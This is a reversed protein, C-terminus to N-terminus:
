SPSAGDAAPSSRRIYVQRARWVPTRRVVALGLRWSALRARFVSAAVRGRLRAVRSPASCARPYGLEGLLAGAIEEFREIDRPSMQERWNRAGATPPETLRPHDLLTRAQVDRHYELMAPEFPLDLFACVARLLGEPDAVLDEYRLEFYRAPGLDSGFGRAARLELDWQCAFGTLSRPRAWNFRPRRRMALFSLGADRGDRVIHVYQAGPFATELLGLHQMYAPTKDGYRTKGRAEAYTLYVAAVVDPFTPNPGLRPAVDGPTVGWERIRAIRGLDALIAERDPLAGHRDWLQPIFYSESPIALRSSGTLMERLLTTGSRSVGLIVVPPGGGAHTM